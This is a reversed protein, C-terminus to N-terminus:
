KEEVKQGGKIAIEYADRGINVNYYYDDMSGIVQKPTIDTSAFDLYNIRELIKFDNRIIKTNIM